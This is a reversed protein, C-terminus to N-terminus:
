QNEFLVISEGPALKVIAKKNQTKKGIFKGVRRKKIPQNLTNVSIVKVKFLQEVAAKISIKNAKPDVSFSYQNQELLRITKETIIPYKIVDICSKLDVEM